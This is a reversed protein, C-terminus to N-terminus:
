KGNRNSNFIIGVIMILSFVAWYKTAWDVAFLEKVTWILWLPTLFLAAFLLGLMILIMVERM